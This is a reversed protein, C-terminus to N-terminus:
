DFVFAQDSESGAFHLYLVHEEKKEEKQVDQTFKM